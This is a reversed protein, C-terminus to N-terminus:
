VGGDEMHVHVSEEDGHFEELAGIEATLRNDDAASRILAADDGGGAVFGTLEADM